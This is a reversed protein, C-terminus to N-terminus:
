FLAEATEPAENRRSSWFVVGPLDAKRLPAKPLGLAFRLRPYDELLWQVLWALAYTGAVVFVIRSLFDWTTVEWCLFDVARLVHTHALYVFFTYPAVGTYLFGWHPNGHVRALLWDKGKMFLLLSALCYVVVSWRNFHDSDYLGKGAWINYGYEFLLLALAAAWFAFARSGSWRRLWGALFDRRWAAHMGACCYFVYFVLLNSHLAPLKLGLPELYTEVPSMFALHLLLCIGLVWGRRALRYVFPFVLYFQFIVILFYYQYDFGDVLLFKLFVLVSSGPASRWSLEALYDLHRFGTFVSWLVFPILIKPLRFRYYDGLKPPKELFQQTLGFGSLFFFVPVTFRTLQDIFTALFGLSWFDHSTYFGEVWFHVCHSVVVMVSATVRLIEGDRRSLQYKQSPGM